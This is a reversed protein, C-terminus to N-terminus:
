EKGRHFLIRVRLFFTLVRARNLRLSKGSGQTKLTVNAYILHKSGAAESVRNKATINCTYNVFPSLTTITVHTTNSTKMHSVLGAEGDCTKEQCDKCTKQCDVEYLVQGGTIVPPKWTIM